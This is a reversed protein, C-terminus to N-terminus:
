FGQEPRVKITPDNDFKPDGIAGLLVADSETCTKLVKMRLQFVTIKLRVHEWRLRTYEFDHQFTSALPM